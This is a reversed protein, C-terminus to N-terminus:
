CNPDTKHHQKKPTAKLSIYCLDPPFYPYSFIALQEPKWFFMKCIGLFIYINVEPDLLVSFFGFLQIHQQKEYFQHNKLWLIFTVKWFLLFGCVALLQLPNCMIYRTLIPAEHNNLLLAIQHAAAYSVNSMLTSLRLTIEHPFPNSCRNAITM